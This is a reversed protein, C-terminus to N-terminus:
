VAQIPEFLLMTDLLSRGADQRDDGLGGLRQEAQPIVCGAPGPKGAQGPTGFVEAAGDAGGRRTVDVAVPRRGEPQDAVQAQEGRVRRAYRGDVGHEHVERIECFEVVFAVLSPAVAEAAFERDVRGLDLDDVPGELGAFFFDLAGAFDDRQELGIGACGDEFEFAGHDVQRVELM